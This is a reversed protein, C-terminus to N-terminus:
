LYVAKNADLFCAGYHKKLEQKLMDNEQTQLVRQLYGKREAIKKSLLLIKIVYNKPNFRVKVHSVLRTNSVIEHSIYM